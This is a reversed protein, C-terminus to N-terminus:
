MSKAILKDMNGSLMVGAVAERHLQFLRNIRKVGRGDVQTQANKRLCSKAGGLGSNLHM